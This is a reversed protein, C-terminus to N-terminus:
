DVDLTSVSYPFILLLFYYYFFPRTISGYTVPCLVCVCEFYGFASIYLLLLILSSKQTYIIM